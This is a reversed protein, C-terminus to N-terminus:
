NIDNNKSLFQEAQEQLRDVLDTDELIGLQIISDKKVAFAITEPVHGFYFYEDDEEILFGGLVGPQASTKLNGKNDLMTQMMDKKVWISVREGTFIEFLKSINKRKSMNCGGM